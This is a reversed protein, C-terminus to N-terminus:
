KVPGPHTSSLLDSPVHVHLRFRMPGHRADIECSVVRVPYLRSAGTPSNFQLVFEEDRRAPQSTVVVASEGDWSEVVCDSVTRAQGDAPALLVYRTFRRRGTMSTHLLLRPAAACSFLPESRPM